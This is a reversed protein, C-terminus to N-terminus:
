SEWVGFSISTLSMRFRKLDHSPSLYSPYELPSMFKFIHSLPLKNYVISNIIPRSMDLNIPQMIFDIISCQKCEVYGLQIIMTPWHISKWTLRYFHDVEHVIWLECHVDLKQRYFISLAWLVLASPIHLMCTADIHFSVFYFVISVFM